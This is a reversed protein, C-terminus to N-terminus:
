ATETRDPATVDQAEAALYAEYEAEMSEMTTMEDGVLMARLFALVRDKPHTQPYADTPKDNVFSGIRYSTAYTSEFEDFATMGWRAEVHSLVCHRTGCPSRFTPGAWWTNPDTGDLYAIVEVLPPLAKTPTGFRSSTTSM